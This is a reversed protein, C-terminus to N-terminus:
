RYGLQELREEVDPSVSREESRADEDVSVEDGEVSVEAEDGGDVVSAKKRAGESPWAPLM